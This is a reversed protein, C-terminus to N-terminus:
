GIKNYRTHMIKSEISNQAITNSLISSDVPSKQARITPVKELSIVSGYIRSLHRSGPIKFGSGTKIFIFCIFISVLAPFLCLELPFCSSVFM